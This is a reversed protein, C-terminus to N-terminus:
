TIAYFAVGVSSATGYTAVCGAACVSLCLFLNYGIEGTEEMEGLSNIREM